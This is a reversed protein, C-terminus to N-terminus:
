VVIGMQIPDKEVTLAIRDDKLSTDIEQNHDELIEEIDTDDTTVLHDDEFGHHHHGEIENEAQVGKEQIHHGSEASFDEETHPLHGAINENEHDDM